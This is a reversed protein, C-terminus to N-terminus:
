SAQATPEQGSGPQRPVEHLASKDPDSGITAQAHAANKSLAMAMKLQIYAGMLVSLGTVGLLMANAALWAELPTCEIEVLGTVEKFHKLCAIVMPEPFHPILDIRGKTVIALGMGAGHAPLAAAFALQDEPIGEFPNFKVKKPEDPSPARKRQVYPARSQANEGPIGPINGGSNWKPDNPDKRKRGSKKRLSGDKNFKPISEVDQSDGLTDPIGNDIGSAPLATDSATELDTEM